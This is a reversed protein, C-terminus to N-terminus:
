KLDVNINSEFQSSAGCDFDDCKVNKLSYIQGLNFSAVTSLMEGKLYISFYINQSSSVDTSGGLDNVTLNVKIVDKDILKVLDVIRGVNILNKSSLIEKSQINTSTFIFLAMLSLIKMSDM